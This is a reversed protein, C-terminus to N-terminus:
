RRSLLGMLGGGVAGAAAGWPGLSSLMSAGSLAGGLGSMAPNSSTPQYAQTSWGNSTTSTNYPTNSLASMRLNLPALQSQQWEQYAQQQADLQAQNNNYLQNAANLGANASNLYDQQQAGTLTGQLGAGTLGIRARDLGLQQNMQAASLGTSQNALAARLNADQNMGAAQLDRARDTSYAGMAQNFNQSNLNAALSGKNMGYQSNTVADMINRRSNGFANQKQAIDANNNIDRAQTQDMLALSSNIVDQTYPNMYQNLDNANFRGYNVNNAAVNQPNYNSISNLGALANAVTNQANQYGANSSGVNGVLGNILGMQQSNLDAVRQGQYPAFVSPDINSAADYNARGADQVWQPLQNQTTNSSPMMIMQPAGDGKSM